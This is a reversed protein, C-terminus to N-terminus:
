LSDLNQLKTELLEIHKAQLAIIKEKAALLDDVLKKPDQSLASVNIAPTNEHNTDHQVLGEGAVLEKPSVNYLSAIKELSEVSPFHHDSELKCYNGQTM